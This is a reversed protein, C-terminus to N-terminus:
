AFTLERSQNVSQKWNKHAKWWASYDYRLVPITTHGAEIYSHLRHNGDQVLEDELLSAICPWRHDAGYTPMDSTSMYWRHYDEFDSFSGAMDALAMTAAKIVAVPIELLVAPVDKFVALAHSLEPMDDGDICYQVTAFTSEPPLDGLTSTPANDFLEQLPLTPKSPHTM